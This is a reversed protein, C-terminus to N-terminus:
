KIHDRLVLANNHEIDRASFLLTVPQEKAIRRIHKVAEKKESDTKLEGSYRRRFENWKEPDHSFWKRLANSPAADKIWEDIRAEEKSIGRPWLRDVLIRFGDSKEAKEYVRKVQVNKMDESYGGEAELLLPCVM